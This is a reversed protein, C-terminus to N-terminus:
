STVERRPDGRRNEFSQTAVAPLPATSELICGLNYGRPNELVDVMNECCWVKTGYHRVLHPFGNLHDDHIHSPMCVEVLMAKGSDSIIAYSTSTTQHSCILHPTVYFPKSAATMTMSLSNGSSYSEWWSKLKGILDTIGAEPSAFPEGHSPCVLELSLERLKTLSFIAMDVGDASGYGYQLTVRHMQDVFLKISTSLM